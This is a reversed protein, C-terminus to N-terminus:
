RKMAERRKVETFITNFLKYYLEEDYIQKIHKKAGFQNYRTEQINIRVDSANDNIKNVMVSVEVLTGKDWIVRALLVQMVQSAHSTERDVTATILGSNMDTNKIIYGNDQLTTLCARYINEYSGEM